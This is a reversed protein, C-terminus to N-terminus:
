ERICTSAIIAIFSYLPNLPRYGIGNKKTEGNYRSNTFTIDDKYLGIDLPIEFSFISMCYCYYLM